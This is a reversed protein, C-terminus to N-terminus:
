FVQNAELIKVIKLISNKDVKPIEIFWSDSDHNFWNALDFVIASVEIPISNVFLILQEESCEEGLYFTRKNVEDRYIKPYSSKHKKNTSVQVDYGSLGELIILAKNPGLGIEIKPKRSQNSISFLFGRNEYIRGGFEKRLEKALQYITPFKSKKDMKIKNM